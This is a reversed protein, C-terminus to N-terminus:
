VCLFASPVMYEPLKEKLFNRLESVSFEPQQDSVVYAILRKNGPRDEALVITERITPHQGVLEIQWSSASAHIKVQHDIRGLFQHQRRTSLSGTQLLRSGM